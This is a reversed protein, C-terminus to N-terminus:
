YAIIRYFRNTVGLVTTDTCNTMMDLGTIASYGPLNLWVPSPALTNAYQVAYNWNLRAFWTLTFSTNTGSSTMATLQTLGNTAAAPDVQVILIRNHSTDAIYLYGRPDWEVDGPHSLVNSGVLTTWTLGTMDSYAVRSDYNNAVYLNGNGITMGGPDQLSGQSADRGGLLGLYQGTKSFKQIRNLGNTQTGDDSVYLNDASDIHLGQPYQVKGVTPGNTVFVSWVQSTSFKQVRHNWTDAVYLNLASDVAVDAPGNFQGLASGSVLTNSGVSVWLGNTAVRKQIRHNSQDAVFLNGLKDVALGSPKKFQGLNTGFKGWNTWLQSLADYMQIRDNYTDAVYLRHLPDSDLGHPLYFEGANTGIPGGFVDAKLYTASLEAVSQNTVLVTQSGPALWGANVPKFEVTYSGAPLPLLTGSNTWEGGSIRWQAGTAVAEAPLLDVAL